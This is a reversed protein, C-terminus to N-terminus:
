VMDIEVARDPHAAKCGDLVGEVLDMDGLWGMVPAPVDLGKLVALLRDTSM